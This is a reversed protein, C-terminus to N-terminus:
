IEGDESRLEDAEAKLHRLRRKFWVTGFVISVLFVALQSVMFEGLNYTADLIGALILVLWLFVGGLQVAGVILLVKFIARGTQKQVYFEPDEKPDFNQSM